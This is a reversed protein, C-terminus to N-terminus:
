SRFVSIITASKDNFITEEPYRQILRGGPIKGIEFHVAILVKILKKIKISIFSHHKM